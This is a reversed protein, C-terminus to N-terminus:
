AFSVKSYETLAGLRDRHLTLQGFPLQLALVSDEVGGLERKAATDERRVEGRYLSGYIQQLISQVRCM